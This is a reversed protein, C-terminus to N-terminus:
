YDTVYFIFPIDDSSIEYIEFLQLTLIIFLTFIIPLPQATITNKIAAIITTNTSLGIAISPGNRFNKNYQEKNPM